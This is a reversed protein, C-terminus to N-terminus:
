GNQGRKGKFNRFKTGLLKRTRQERAVVALGFRLSRTQSDRASRGDDEEGAPINLM